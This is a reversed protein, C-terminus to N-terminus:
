RGQKVFSEFTEVDIPGVGSLGPGEDPGRLVMHMKGQSMAFVLLEAETPTVEFTVTGYSKPAIMEGLAGTLGIGKTLYGGLDIISVDSKMYLIKSKGGPAGTAADFPMYTLMIDVRDGASLRGAIGSLEDIPLTVARKGKSIRKSWRNGELSRQELDSWRLTHGPDLQVRVIQSLVKNMDKAEVVDKDLGRKVREEARVFSPNIPAGEGIPTTVAVVMLKEGVQSEIESNIYAQVAFVSALGLGVAIIIALMNKM